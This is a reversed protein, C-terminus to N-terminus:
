RGRRTAKQPTEVDGTEGASTGDADAQGTLRHHGTGGAATRLALGGAATRLKAHYGAAAQVDCARIVAGEM